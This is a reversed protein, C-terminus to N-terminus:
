ADVEILRALQAVTRIPRLKDCQRARAEFGKRGYDNDHAYWNLWGDRDGVLEAVAKTYQDQQECLLTHLTGEPEVRGIGLEVAELILGRMEDWHMMDMRWLKIIERRRTKTMSM